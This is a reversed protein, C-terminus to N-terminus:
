FMSPFSHLSNFSDSELSFNRLNNSGFCVQGLKSVNTLPYCFLKSDARIIKDKVAMVKAKQMVGDLLHIAFILSSMGVDDMVDDYFAVRSPRAERQLVVIESNKDKIIHQLIHVGNFSPFIPSSYLIEKKPKNIGKEDKIAKGKCTDLVNYLTEVDITKKKSIVNENNSTM